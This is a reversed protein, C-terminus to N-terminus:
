YDDFTDRCLPHIKKPLKDKEEQSNVWSILSSKRYYTNRGIKIRPPGSKRSGWARLTMVAVGLLESAETENLLDPFVERSIEMMEQAANRAM